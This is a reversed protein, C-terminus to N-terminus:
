LKTKNAIISRVISRRTPKLKNELAFCATREVCKFASFLQAIELNSLRGIAKGDVTCVAISGNYNIEIKM